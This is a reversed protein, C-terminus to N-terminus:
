LLLCPANPLSLPSTPLPWRRGGDSGGMRPQHPPFHLLFGAPLLWALPQICKLSREGLLCCCSGGSVSTKWQKGPECPLAKFWLQACCLLVQGKSGQTCLGAHSAAGGGSCPQDPDLWEGGERGRGKTPCGSCLWLASCLPVEENPSSWLGARGQKSGEWGLLVSKCSVAWLGCMRSQGM